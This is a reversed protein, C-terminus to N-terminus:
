WRTSSRPPWCTPLEAAQLCASAGIGVVRNKPFFRVVTERSVCREVIGSLLTGLVVFPMAEYLIGWWVLVFDSLNFSFTTM